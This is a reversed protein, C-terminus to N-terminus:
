KRLLREFRTWMLDPYYTHPGIAKIIELKDRANLSSFVPEAKKVVAAAGDYPFIHDRDGSLILCYRPAILAILADYEFYKLVDPIIASGIGRKLLETFFGICGGAAVGSIRKDLASTTIAVTGGLSYGTIYIRESKIKSNAGASVIWDIISMVDNVMGGLLTRGLLLAHNAADATPNPTKKHLKKECREGFCSQEICIAVYGRDAAQLAITSGSHTKYPDTTTIHEGWSLHAGANTGQLCIIIPKGKASGKWLINVPIDRRFDARLYYKSRNYKKKWVFDKKYLIEVKERTKPIKILEMLKTHVMNQWETPNKYRGQNWSLELPASEGIANHHDSPTLYSDVPPKPYPDFNRKYFASLKYRFALIYYEILPHM